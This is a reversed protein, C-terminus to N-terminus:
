GTGEITEVKDIIVWGGSGIRGVLIKDGASLSPVRSLQLNTTTTADLGTAGFLDFAVITTASNPTVSAVVGWSLHFVEVPSVVAEAFSIIASM